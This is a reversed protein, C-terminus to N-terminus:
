TSLEEKDDADSGLRFKIDYNIIFDREDETFGYHRALKLDIEDLIDKSESVNFEDYAITAGDKTNITKRTAHQKLDMMLKANLAILSNDGLISPAIPFSTALTDSLHFCDGYVIFYTYFLSSNLVACVAHSHPEDQFYLYRGHAPPGVRKNKAYYPVGVTAKVWYQTAEQYFIFHNTPHSSSVLQIPKRQGVFVKTFASALLAAPIKPFQGQLLTSESIRTFELTAFLNSRVESAWRNYRTTVLVASGAPRMKKAVLIASRCHQLGEFLKGPRDDCSIVRVLNCKQSLYQRLTAMRSSSVVPLQVIFSFYGGPGILQLSRESCLAYLNGTKEVSYDKVTYQTKVAAYEKWPPNGIIVDFGGGRMIAYFEVFWHFPEHSKLWKNYAIKDSIKVGYDVALYRNLEDELAKLRQRLQLKHQAPVSTGDETQYRRFTDFTHQLDGAKANIKEAANEFDLKSSLARKIEDYNAYGILTNGARINFDIDPLPEIGLNHSALDPTVQAALKLFLRLKCIEVAEEMIDVGFLNNLIINKFIFYRRNPHVAARSLIERFDSFTNPQTNENSREFDAIFAAMRDLCAEYLPELVNLAAFLFAGSGCTPDLITIHEVAQWFARLLEPGQCNEIVDQAFQRIDLNLTILDNIDQIEGADLKHRLEECRNRRAVVERWTETPLSLQAPGPKNWNLRKAVSNLGAAIEAPLPDSVGHRVAPYIYRDPTERLLDWLTPGGPNEFAVKCKPKASDFLFPIVTHKSIYETIDEKTYYAGMQKQNIYKEFIYGLVDPNIEDDARIPREDLHWQYQDFYNFIRDFAKDPIQITKGYREPAELEHIDFIGGNLYPVRGILKELETDRKRGGLGEHFLRLLFYRYFSYFKDNGKEKRCRALRNRLYNLDGDLFGKKQMFYVFMLRNLMVSAYWEHDGSEAIGAIFKLFAVHEQQFQDFFRKTVREVDFGARARGTVDPLSLSDEEDLSFAVAQLKQILADGPQSTQYSHERCAVPKSPERKVWQWIQTTKAADTFIIFHELASKAVQNEIKRREAYEPMPGRTSATCQYAVMGRKHAIAILTYSQTGVMVKLPAQYRDWGLEEIFLTRFDFDKLFQRARTVNIPM